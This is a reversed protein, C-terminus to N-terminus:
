NLTVLIPILGQGSAIPCLAKGNVAGFARLPDDAKMAFGPTPSSTLLDGVEIPSYRADVKCYVKGVLAVPARRDQCQRRDLIIGARCGDAGSIVGAVKKDYAEESRRLAGGRDIVVVTGPEIREADGIDFDEACDGAGPLYIDGTVSVSGDFFGALGAKNVSGDPNLNHGSIGARNPLHSVGFVGDFQQSDGV